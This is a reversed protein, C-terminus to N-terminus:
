DTLSGLVERIEKLSGEPAKGHLKEIIEDIRAVAENTREFRAVLGLKEEYGALADQANKLADHVGQRSIGFEEAIESLSLNEEHYLQMVESQRKTLLAGYFDYELSLKTDINM